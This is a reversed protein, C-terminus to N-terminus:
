TLGTAVALPKASGPLRSWGPWEHAGSRRDKSASTGALWVPAGIPVASVSVTVRVLGSPEVTRSRSTVVAFSPGEREAVCQGPPGTRRGRNV